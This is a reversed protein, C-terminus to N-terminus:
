TRRRSSTPAPRPTRSAGRAGAARRTPDNRSRTTSRRHRLPRSRHVRVPLRRHRGARRAGRAQDRPDGVAGAGGSRLGGIRHRGQSRAPRVAAREPRRRGARAAAEKCRKTSRCTSCARCRRRSRAARRRRRLRVAAAHLMDPSLRTERVLARMARAHALRRLRRTLKLTTRRHRVHQTRTSVSRSGDATSINSSRTSWRRCRTNDGAHDHDPHRAPRRRPRSRGSRPSSPRRAAPRRGARRRADRVFNRVASASTFTVVDIRRELLMRYVDPEGEREPMPSSRETPSWRPSRPARAQATGRRHGRPRHRRAAAARQAGAVDGTARCRTSSPRPATSPPCRSRGEARSARLREATAPGVRVAEVGDSRACTARRRSCGTSSRTWRTPARSSSGTSRRRRQACADDLPGFDDPPVIRIM